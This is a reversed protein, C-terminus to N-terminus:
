GPACPGQALPEPCLSGAACWWTPELLSLARSAREAALRDAFLAFCTAGSGSMRALLAGELSSLRALVSAIEPLLGQAAETLDNRRSALTEALAFVDRPMRRFRGKKSFRGSRAAYVQATPLAKAPNALLIGGQPLGAAPKLKEGIGGVWVPRAYLSAPVDAGLTAGLAALANEGISLRWHRVLLRLAAAADSSGGGLGSAVPLNKELVFRAKAAIGAHRALARAAALVLNEGGSAALSQAQPGELVLELSQGPSVSLRDGISPFVVLSDLLHYGDGRRGTLQLYLNVKAAAFASLPM